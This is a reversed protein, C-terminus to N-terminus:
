GGTRRLFEKGRPSLRYGRGLSETLGLGKLRRVRNEFTPQDMSVQGCLDASRLDSRRLKTSIEAVDDDSLEADERLTVSGDEIAPWISAEFLM